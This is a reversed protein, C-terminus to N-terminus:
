GLLERCTQIVHGASQDNTLPGLLGVTLNRKIGCESIVVDTNLVCRKKGEFRAQCEFTAVPGSDRDAHAPNTLSRFCGRSLGNESGLFRM